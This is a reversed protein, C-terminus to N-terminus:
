RPRGRHLEREALHAYRTVTSLDAHGLYEAVRPTGTQQTAWTAAQPPAYPRDRAEGPRRCPRLPRTKVPLRLVAVKIAGHRRRAARDFEAGAELEGRDATDTASARTSDTSEHCDAHGRPASSECDEKGKRKGGGSAARGNEERDQSM